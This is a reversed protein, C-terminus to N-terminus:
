LHNGSGGEEDPDSQGDPVQEYKASNALFPFFHELDAEGLRDREDGQDRRETAVELRGPSATGILHCDRAVDDRRLVM